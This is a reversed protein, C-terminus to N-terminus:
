NATAAGGTPLGGLFREVLAGLEDLRGTLRHDAGEWLVLDVDDRPAADVFEQSAQWPVSEDATGHVIRTPLRVQPALRATCRSEIETLIGPRLFVHRDQLQVRHLGGETWADRQNAPLQAVYRDLFGFAPAILFLGDAAAAGEAVAWSSVLGGFSSGVLARRPADAYAAIKAARRVDDVSREVTLGELGGGSEGHGQLDVALVTWGAAPLVRGLHEIKSGRRGSAFGHVCLVAGRPEPADYVDVALRPGGETVEVVRREAV